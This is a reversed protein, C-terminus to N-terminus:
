RLRLGCAIRARRSLPINGGGECKAVESIKWQLTEHCIVAAVLEGGVFGIEGAVVVLALLELREGFYDFVDLGGDQHTEGGDAAGEVCVDQAAHGFEVIFGDNEGQGVGGCVGFAVELVSYLSGVSADEKSTATRELRQRILALRHRRPLSIIHYAGM